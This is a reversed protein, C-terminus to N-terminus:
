RAVAAARQAADIMDARASMDSVLRLAALRANGHVNGVNNRVLRASERLAAASTEDQWRQTMMAKGVAGGM